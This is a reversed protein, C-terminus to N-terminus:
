NLASFRLALLLPSSIQMAIVRPWDIARQTSLPPVLPRWRVYVCLVFAFNRRRRFILLEKGRGSQLRGALWSAGGAREHIIFLLLLRCLLARVAKRSRTVPASVSQSTSIRDILMIFLVSM